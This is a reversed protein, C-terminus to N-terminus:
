SAHSRDRRDNQGRALSDWRAGTADRLKGPKAQLRDYPKRTNPGGLMKDLPIPAPLQDPAEDDSQTRRL